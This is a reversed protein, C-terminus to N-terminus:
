NERRERKTINGYRKKETFTKVDESFDKNQPPQSIGTPLLDKNWGMVMPDILFPFAALGGNKLDIFLNSIDSYGSFRKGSLLRIPYPKDQRQEALVMDQSILWFGSRERFGFRERSRKM